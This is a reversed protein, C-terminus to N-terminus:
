IGFQFNGKELISKEVIETEEEWVLKESSNAVNLVIPQLYVVVPV